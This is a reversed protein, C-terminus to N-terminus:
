KYERMGRPLKNSILTKLWSWDKRNLSLTAIGRVGLRWGQSDPQDVVIPQQNFEFVSCGKIEVGGLTLRVNNANYITM